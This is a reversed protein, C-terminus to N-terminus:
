DLDSIDNAAPPAPATTTITAATTTGPSVSVPPKPLGLLNEISDSNRESRVGNGSAVAAVPPDYDYWQASDAGGGEASVPVSTVLPVELSENFENQFQNQALEAQKAMEAAVAQELQEVNLTCCLCWICCNLCLVVSLVCWVPTFIWFTSIDDGRLTCAILVFCLLPVLTGCAYVSASFQVREGHAAKAYNVVDTDQGSRLADLNLGAKADRGEKYAIRVAILRAALYVWCPLLVLGAEWTVTSDLHLVIFVTQWVWFFRLYLSQRANARDELHMYYAELKPHLLDADSGTGDEEASVDRM